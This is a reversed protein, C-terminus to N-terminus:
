LTPIPKDFVRDRWYYVDDHESIERVVKCPSGFAVSNAPIDKTVLSAAGIVSNDGITVGPLIIAGAGIWVNNGITVPLSFQAHVTRLEPKVPHGTTTIVVNPAIMVNDGITVPGDDVLTLNFNAYCGDGWHTNLGWNAHLPPEVYLDKGVSGFFAALLEARRKQESPRSTNYDYLLEMSHLQAEVFSDGCIYVDGSHMVELKEEPITHHHTSATSASPTTPTTPAEPTIPSPTESPTMTESPTAETNETMVAVMRSAHVAFHTPGNAM